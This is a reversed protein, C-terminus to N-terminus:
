LPCAISVIHFAEHILVTTITRM